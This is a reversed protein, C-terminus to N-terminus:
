RRTLWARFRAWRGSPGVPEAGDEAPAPETAQARARRERWERVVREVDQTQLFIPPGDLGHVRGHRIQSNLDAVIERVRQEDREGAVTEPLEEIARRLALSPPLVGSLDERQVWQNVWWNPDHRGTLGPLPKGSGKLNDFAGAEQAERIQRDVDSEYPRM